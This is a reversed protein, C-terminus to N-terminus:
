LDIEVILIDFFVIGFLFEYNVCDVDFCVMYEVDYGWLVINVGNCVLFIVLLIGYFGVGIVIMEVFKGYSNYNQIESM